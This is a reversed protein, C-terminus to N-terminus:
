TTKKPQNHRENIIVKELFRIQDAFYTNKKPFNAHLHRIIEVAKEYRGQRIYIRALTETFCDEELPAEASDEALNQPEYEPDKKLEIRPPTNDIYNDLLTAHRDNRQPKQGSTSTTAEPEADDMQLLFATYDTTVDAATPKRRPLSDDTPATSLYTDIIAQKRERANQFTEDKKAQTKRKHNPFQYNDGEVMEFLVKRDPLFIASRRMEEGFAPDHMLFLNQLYLLRAVSYYPHRAVLERLKYLTERNLQEPHDIYSAIDM